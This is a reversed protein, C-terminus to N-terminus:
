VKNGVQEGLGGRLGFRFCLPIEDLLLDLCVLYRRWDVFLSGKRLGLLELSRGFIRTVRHGSSEVAVRRDSLLVRM